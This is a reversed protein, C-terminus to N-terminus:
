IENVTYPIVCTNDVLFICFKQICYAAGELSKKSETQM